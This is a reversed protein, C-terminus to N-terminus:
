ERSERAELSQVLRVLSELEDWGADTAACHAVNGSKWFMLHYGNRTASAPLHGATWAWSFVNIVHAGHRYVVVAARQRELYDTRGGVLAYGQDAFDAVAPSVDSHGAFWPKVTHRDSSVVEILHEPMMSRVHASVLEDVLLGSASPQMMLLLCGAVLATVGVGGFAGRWFDPTPRWRRSMRPVGEDDIARELRARLAAPAREHGADRRLAARLARLEDLLARCEGCTQCHREVQAAAIADVEGDFYAQVQLSEACRM